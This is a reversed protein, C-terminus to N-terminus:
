AAEYKCYLIHDSDWDINCYVYAPAPFFSNDWIQSIWKGIDLKNSAPFNRVQGDCEVTYSDPSRLNQQYVTKKVNRM